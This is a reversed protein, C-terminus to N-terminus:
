EQGMWTTLNAKSPPRGRRQVRPHGAAEAGQFDEFLARLWDFVSDGLVKWLRYMTDTSPLVAGYELKQITNETVGARSALAKQTLGAGLRIDRLGPM